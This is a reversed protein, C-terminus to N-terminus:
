GRPPRARRLMWWCWWLLFVLYAALAPWLVSPWGRDLTVGVVEVLGAAVLLTTAAMLLDMEDVMRRVFGDRRAPALWYDKHPYSLASPHRRTVWAILWRMSIVGLVIVLVPWLLGGRSGVRNVGESGLHHVVGDPPLVTWAWAWVGLYVALSLLLAPGGIRPHSAPADDGPVFYTM